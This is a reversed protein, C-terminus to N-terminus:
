PRPPTMTFITITSNFSYIVFPKEKTGPMGPSGPPMGPLAVGKIDPRESLLKKIAEAPVHGVVIYGELFSMHCSRLEMPIGLRDMVSDIDDVAAIKVRAGLNSLYRAYQSCCECLRPKILSVEVGDLRVNSSISFISLYLAISVIVVAIVPILLSYLLRRSTRRRVRKTKKM